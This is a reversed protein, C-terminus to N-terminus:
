EWNRMEVAILVFGKEAVVTNNRSRETINKSEEIIRELGTNCITFIKRLTHHIKSNLARRGFINSIIYM